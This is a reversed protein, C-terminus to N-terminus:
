SALGTLISGEPLLGGYHNYPDPVRHRYGSYQQRDIASINDDAIARADPSLRVHGAVQGLPDARDPRLAPPDMPGLTLISGIDPQQQHRRSPRRELLVALEVARGSAARGREHRRHLGAACTPAVNGVEQNRLHREDRAAAM